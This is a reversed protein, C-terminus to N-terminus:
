EFFGAREGVERAYGRVLEAVKQEILRRYTQRHIAYVKKLLPLLDKLATEVMKLRKEHTSPPIGLKKELLFDIAVFVAKAYNEAAATYNGKSFLFEGAEFFAIFLERYDVM